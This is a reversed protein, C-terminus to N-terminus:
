KSRVFKIWGQSLRHWRPFESDECSFGVCVADEFQLEGDIVVWDYFRSCYAEITDFDIRRVFAELFAMLYLTFSTKSTFTRDTKM